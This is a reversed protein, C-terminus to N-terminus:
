SQLCGSSASASGTKSKFSFGSRKSQGEESRFKELEETAASFKQVAKERQSELDLVHKDRRLAREKWTKRGKEIDKATELLEFSVDMLAKSFHLHAQAAADNIDLSQLM